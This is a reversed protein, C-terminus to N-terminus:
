MSDSGKLRRVVFQNSVYARLDTRLGYPWAIVLFVVSNVKTEHYEHKSSYGPAHGPEDTKM